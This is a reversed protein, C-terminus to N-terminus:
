LSTLKFHVYEQGRPVIVKSVTMYYVEKDNFKYKKQLLDLFPKVGNDIDSAKNSFGFEFHLAYPADPLKSLKLKPLVAKEYATYAKSKFRKGQWAQNVSLPKIPLKQQM